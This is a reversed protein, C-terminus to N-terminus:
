DWFSVNHSPFPLLIQSTDKECHTLNAGKEKEYRMMKSLLLIGYVSLLQKMDTKNIKLTGIYDYCGVALPCDFHQLKDLVGLM